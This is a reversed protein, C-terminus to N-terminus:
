RPEQSLLILINYITHYQTYIEADPIAYATLDLFHRLIPRLQLYGRFSFILFPLRVGPLSSCCQAIRMLASGCCAHLRIKDKVDCEGSSSAERNGAGTIRGM